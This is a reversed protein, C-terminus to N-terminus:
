GVFRIGAARAIFDFVRAARYRGVRSSTLHSDNDIATRYSRGRQRRSLGVYSPVSM